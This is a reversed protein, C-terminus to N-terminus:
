YKATGLSDRQGAFGYSLSGGEKEPMVHEAESWTVLKNDVFKLDVFTAKEGSRTSTYFVMAVDAPNPKYAYSWIQTRDDPYQRIDPEGWKNRIELTGQGEKLSDTLYSARIRTGAQYFIGCGSTVMSVALTAVIVRLWTSLM